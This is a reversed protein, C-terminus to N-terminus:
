GRSAAGLADPLDALRELGAAITEHSKSCTFRVLRRVDPDTPDDLDAYFVQAPIAGVGVLGPLRRCFELGDWPCGAVDLVGTIDAMVFYTGQAPAVDFGLDTLGAVLRDRRDQFGAQIERIRSDPLRLGAAVGHQFPTGNTFTMNQKARTVATLVPAPGTLWGVKWGTVSFTKGASSITLTREAMEPLTAFPIHVHQDFTLHEYVEDTLVFLDHEAAVEAIQQLEAADFVHGTPNHPSNLIMFRTKDSIAARLRDVDLAFGPACLRVPTLTAHAMAAAGAYCDYTPEFAVIDDGPEVLALIAATMAETAGASVVVETDPDLQQGYWRAQHDAIAARLDPIGRGPAYQNDGRALAEAAASLVEAPGSEDPFGQGLSIAGHATALETMEDFITNEFRRLHRVLPPQKSM